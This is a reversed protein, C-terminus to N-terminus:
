IARISVNGLIAGIGYAFFVVGYNRAYNKAGFFTTTSTPAIALWGGLCLWLAAFCATYLAVTGESAQLMLLSAALIIALSVVASWRPKIKDTLWGFLPRGVGNFIAFVGVLM